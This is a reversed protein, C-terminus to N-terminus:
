ALKGQWAARLVPTHGAFRYIKAKAGGATQLNARLDIYDGAELSVLSSANCMWELGNLPTKKVFAALAATISAGNKRIYAYGDEIAETFSTLTFSVYYVGTVTITIREPNGAAWMGNNSWEEETMLITTETADNLEQENGRSIAAMPNAGMKAPTIAGDEILATTIAKLAIKATTVALNKIKGTEVAEAALKAASVALAAIKGETVALNNIKATEVASEALKAATVALAKIKSTAVAEGALMAELVRGAGITSVGASNFAVDGTVAKYVPDSTGNVIVLEGPAPAGLILGEISALVEDLREVAAEIQAAGNPPEESDPFPIDFIPTEEM